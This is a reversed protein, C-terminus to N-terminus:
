QGSPLNKGPYKKNGIARPSDHIIRYVDMPLVRAKDAPNIIGLRSLCRIWPNGCNNRIEQYDGTEKLCKRLLAEEFPSLDLVIGRGGRDIDPETQGGRWGLRIVRGM